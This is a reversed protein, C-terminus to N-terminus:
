SRWTRCSTRFWRARSDPRFMWPSKILNGNESQFTLVAEGGPLPQNHHKILEPKYDWTDVQSMAGSCFVMLM